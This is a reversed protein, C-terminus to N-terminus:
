FREHISVTDDDEPNDNSTKYANRPLAEESQDFVEQSALPALLFQSNSKLINRVAEDTSSFILSFDYKTNFEQKQFTRIVARKCYTLYVKINLEKYSEAM